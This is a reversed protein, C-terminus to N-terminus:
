YARPLSLHAYVTPRIFPVLTRTHARTHHYRPCEGTWMTCHKDLRSGLGVKSWASTISNSGSKRLDSELTEQWAIVAKRYVMNFVEGGSSVEAARGEATISEGVAKQTVCVGVCVRM